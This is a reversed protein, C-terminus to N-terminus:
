PTKAARTGINSPNTIGDQFRGPNTGMQFINDDGTMLVLNLDAALVSKPSDCM